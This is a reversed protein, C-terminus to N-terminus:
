FTCSHCRARLGYISVFCWHCFQTLDQNSWCTLTLSYLEKIECCEKQTRWNLSKFLPMNNKNQVCSTGTARCGRVLENPQAPYPIMMGWVPGGMALTLLMFIIGRGCLFAKCTNRM